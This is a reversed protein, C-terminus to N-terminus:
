LLHEFNHGNVNLQVNELMEVTVTAAAANIRDILIEVTEPVLRPANRWVDAGM